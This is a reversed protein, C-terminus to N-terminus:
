LFLLVDGPKHFVWNSALAYALPPNEHSLSLAAPCRAFLCALHWRRDSYRCVEDLVESPFSALYAASVAKETAEIRRYWDASPDDDKVPVPKHPEAPFRLATFESDALTRSAHWPRSRTKCWARLDPWGSLVLVYRKGFSYLKGNKFVLGCRGEKFDTKVTGKATRIQKSKGDRKM